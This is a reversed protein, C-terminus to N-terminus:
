KKERLYLIEYNDKTNTSYGYLILTDESISLKECRKNEPLILIIDNAELDKINSNDFQCNKSLEFPEFEPANPIGEEIFKVTSNVFEATRYPYASEKWEGQLQEIIEVKNLTPAEEKTENKQEEIIENENSNSLDNEKNQNKCSFIFFTILLFFYNTKNNM